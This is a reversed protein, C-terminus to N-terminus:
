RSRVTLMAGATPPKSLSSHFASPPWRLGKTLWSNRVASSSEPLTPGPVPQLGGPNGRLDLVDFGSGNLAAISSFPQARIDEMTNRCALYALYLAQDHMRMRSHQLLMTLISGVVTTIAVVGVMLEILSAGLERSGERPVSQM